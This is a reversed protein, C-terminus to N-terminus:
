NNANEAVKKNYALIGTKVEQYKSSDLERLHNIKYKGAIRSWLSDDGNILGAIENQADLTLKEVPKDSEPLDEGAYIYHGLGFMAICKVLCRMRTDSIKRADPNKIANNRNDMVPLWMSRTVAEEGESITLDVWVTVCDDGSVDLPKFDYYASPYHDMLQGWAWAWSLYSLRGKKEIKESVDVSSLTDWIKSALMKKSM